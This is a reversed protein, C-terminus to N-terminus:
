LDLRSSGEGASLRLGVQGWRTRLLLATSLRLYYETSGRGSFGRIQEAVTHAALERRLRRSPAPRWLDLAYVGSLRGWFRYRGLRIPFFGTDPLNSQIFYHLAGTV